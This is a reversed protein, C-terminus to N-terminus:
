DVKRQHAEFKLLIVIFLGILSPSMMPAEINSAVPRYM